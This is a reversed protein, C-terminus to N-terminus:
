KEQKKKPEVALVDGFRLYRKVQKNEIVWEGQPRLYRNVHHPHPVLDNPLVPKIFLRKIGPETKTNETM